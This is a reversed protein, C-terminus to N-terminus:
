IFSEIMGNIKEVRFSALKFKEQIHILLDILGMGVKIPNMNVTSILSVNVDQLNTELTNLFEDVQRYKM